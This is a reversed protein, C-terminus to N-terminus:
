KRQSLRKRKDMVQAKNGSDSANVLQLPAFNILHACVVIDLHSYEETRSPWVKTQFSPGHKLKKLSRGSASSLRSVLSIRKSPSSISRCSIATKTSAMREDSSSKTRGNSSAAEAPTLEALADDEIAVNNGAELWLPFAVVAVSIDNKDALVSITSGKATRAMLFITERATLSASEALRSNIRAFKKLIREYIKLIRM